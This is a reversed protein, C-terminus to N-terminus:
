IGESPKLPRLIHPIHHDVFINVADRVETWFAIFDFDSELKRSPDCLRLLGMIEEDGNIEIAVGGRLQLIYVNLLFNLTFMSVFLINYFLQWLVFFYV